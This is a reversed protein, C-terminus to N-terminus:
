GLTVMLEVAVTPVRLTVTVLGSLWLLWRQGITEGHGNWGGNRQDLFCREAPLRSGASRDCQGAGPWRRPCVQDHSHAEPRSSMLLRHNGSVDERATKRSRDKV